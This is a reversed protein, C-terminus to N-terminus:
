KYYREMAKDRGPMSKNIHGTVFVATGAAVDGTPIDLWKVGVGGCAAQVIEASELLADCWGEMRHKGIGQMAEPLEFRRAYLGQAGTKTYPKGERAAQAIAEKLEPLLDRQKPTTKEADSFISKIKQDGVEYSNLVRRVAKMVADAVEFAIMETQYQSLRM